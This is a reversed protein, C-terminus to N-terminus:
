PVRVRVRGMTKFEGIESMLPEFQAGRVLVDLKLDTSRLLEDIERALATVSTFQWGFVQKTERAM